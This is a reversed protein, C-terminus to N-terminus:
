VKRWACHILVAYAAAAILESICIAEAIGRLGHWPVLIVCGLVLAPITIGHLILRPRFLRMANLATGLFVYTYTVGAAAMMWRLLGDHEAYDASYFLNLLARGAFLSILFGMVGIGIGASV